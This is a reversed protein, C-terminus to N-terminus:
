HHYSRKLTTIDVSSSDEFYAEDKMLRRCIHLSMSWRNVAKENPMLGILKGPGHGCHMFTTELFIDTGVNGTQPM